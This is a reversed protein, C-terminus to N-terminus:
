QFEMCCTGMQRPPPSPYDLTTKVYVASVRGYKLCQSVGMSFQSHPCFTHRENRPNHKKYYINLLHYILM